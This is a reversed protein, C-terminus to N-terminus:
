NKNITKKTIWKKKKKIILDNIEVNNYPILDLNRFDYNVISSLDKYEDESLEDFKFIYNFHPFISTILNIM